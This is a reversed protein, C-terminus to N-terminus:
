TTRPPTIWRRGCVPSFHRASGPFGHLMVLLPGKGATVYHIKVGGSDAFGDKGLDEAAAPGVGTLLLVLALLYQPKM